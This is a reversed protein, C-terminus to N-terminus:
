RHVEGCSCTRKNVSIDIAAADEDIVGDDSRIASSIARWTKM